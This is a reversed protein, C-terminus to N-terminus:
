LEDENPVEMNWSEGYLEHGNGSLRLVTHAKVTEQTSIQYAAQKDFAIFVQKQNQNYIRM